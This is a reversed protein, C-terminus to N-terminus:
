LKLPTYLKIGIRELNKVDIEGIISQLVEKESFREPFEITITTRSM